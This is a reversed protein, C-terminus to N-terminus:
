STLHSTDKAQAAPMVRHTQPTLSSNPGGLAGEEPQPSGQSWPDDQPATRNQLLGPARMRRWSPSFLCQPSGVGTERGGRGEKHHHTHQPTPPAGPGQHQLQRGESPGWLSSLAPCARDWPCVQQPGQVSPHEPGLSVEQAAPEARRGKPVRAGPGRGGPSGRQLLKNASVLPGPVFAAETRGSAGTGQKHEGPCTCSVLIKVLGGGCGIRLDPTRSQRKSGGPPQAQPSQGQSSFPPATVAQLMIPGAGTWRPRVRRDRACLRM